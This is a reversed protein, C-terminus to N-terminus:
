RASKRRQAAGQLLARVAEIRKEAMIDTGRAGEPGQFESDVATLRGDRFVHPASLNEAALRSRSGAAVAVFKLADTAIHLHNAGCGM